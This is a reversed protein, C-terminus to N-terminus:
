GHKSCYGKHKGTSICITFNKFVIHIILPQPGPPQTKLRGIARATAAQVEAESLRVGKRGAESRVLRAIQSRSANRSELGVNLQVAATRVPAAKATAARAGSAEAPAPIGAGALFAVAAAALVIPQLKSM